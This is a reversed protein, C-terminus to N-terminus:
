RANFLAHYYVVILQLLKWKEKLKQMSVEKKVQHDGQPVFQKHTDQAYHAICATVFGEGQLEELQTLLAGIMATAEERSPADFEMFVDLAEGDRKSTVTFGSTGVHTIEKGANSTITTLTM